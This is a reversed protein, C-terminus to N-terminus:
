PQAEKLKALLAYVQSRVLLSSGGPQGFGETCADLTKQAAALQQEMHQLRALAETAVHEAEEDMTLKEAELAEVQGRLAADTDLIRQVNEPSIEFPWESLRTGYQVGSMATLEERTLVVPKSM